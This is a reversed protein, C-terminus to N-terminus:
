GNSVEKKPVMEHVIGTWGCSHCMAHNWDEPGMFGMCTKEVKQGGCSPCSSHLRSYEASRETNRAIEKGVDIM